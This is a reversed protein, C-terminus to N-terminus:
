GGGHVHSMGPLTPLKCLALHNAQQFGAAEKFIGTDATDAPHGPVGM